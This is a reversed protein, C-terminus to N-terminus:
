QNDNKTEKKIEIKEKSFDININTNIKLRRYRVGCEEFMIKSAVTEKKKDYKDSLYVINKIGSQIIMKACQNCPFLAVYLTAGELDHRNGPYNLIANLESHCVYAYKTELMDGERNWPFINDSFGNPTGNYGISLIRNEKDVICAGVQTNPDKSRGSSLLAIGMFFEDWNLYKERKGGLIDKNLGLM